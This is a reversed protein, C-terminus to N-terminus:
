RVDLKDVYKDKAKYLAMFELVHVSLIYVECPFIRKAKSTICKCARKRESSRLGDRLKQLQSKQRQIHVRGNNCIPIDTLFGSGFLLSHLNQYAMEDPGTTNAYTNPKQDVLSFPYFM